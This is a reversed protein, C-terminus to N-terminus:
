DVVQLRPPSTAYKDHGAGGQTRRIAEKYARLDEGRGRPSIVALRFRPNQHDPDSVVIDGSRGVGPVDRTLTWTEAM